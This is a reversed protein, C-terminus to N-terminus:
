QELDFSVLPLYQADNSTFSSGHSVRYRMILWVVLSCIPIAIVVFVTAVTFRSVAKINPIQHILLSQITQGAEFRQWVIPELLDKIRELSGNNPRPRIGMIACIMLYVDVNEVDERQNDYAKKFSPGSAIFFPRMTSVEDNLFGHDGFRSHNGLKELEETRNKRLLVIAGKKPFLILPGVRRHNKWHYKEPFDKKLWVHIPLAQDKVATQLKLYIEEITVTANPAVFYSYSSKILSGVTEEGLVEDLVVLNKDRLDYSLDVPEHGHDATFIIDVKDWLREEKLRTVLHGVINDLDAIISLVTPSNLENHHQAEDPQSIYYFGLNIKDSSIWEVLDDLDKKWISFNGYIEWPRCYTNNFDPFRVNGMPWRMLGCNKGTDFQYSTWISEADYWKPELSGNSIATNNGFNWIDYSEQFNPDFMVNGVIGHSEEYLGTSLCQYNPATVTAVQSLIGNRLHTGNKAISYLNPTKEETISGFGLGDFSIVLLKTRNDCSCGTFILTLLWATQM